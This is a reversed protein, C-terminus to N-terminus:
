NNMSRFRELSQKVYRQGEIMEQSNNNIQSINSDLICDQNIENFKNIHILQHNNKVAELITEGKLECINDLYILKFTFTQLKQIIDDKQNEDNNIIIQDITNNSITIDTVNENKIKMGLKNIKKNKKSRKWKKSIYSTLENHTAQPNKKKCKILQQKYFEKWLQLGKKIKKRQSNFQETKQNFQTVIEEIETKKITQNNVHKNLDHVLKKNDM